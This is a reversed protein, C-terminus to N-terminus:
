PFVFDTLPSNEYGVYGGTDGGFEGSVYGRESVLPSGTEPMRRVSWAAINKIQLSKREASSAVTLSFHHL